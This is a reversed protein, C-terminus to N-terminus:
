KGNAKCFATIEKKVKSSARRLALVRIDAVGELIHTPLFSCYKIYFQFSQEFHKKNKERDFPPRNSYDLLAQEREMPYKKRYEEIEEKTSYPYWKSDFEEPYYEEISRNHIEEERKLWAVEQKAYLKQFYEESFVEANKSVRIRFLGSKRSAEMWERNFYKM